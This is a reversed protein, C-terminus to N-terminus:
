RASPAFERAAESLYDHVYASFSRWCEVQYTPADDLRMLVIEAKGLLTRTAMGTPFAAEVLDLPCGSNLVDAARPGSVQIGVNRHGIDVLAHFRGDLAAEVGGAILDADGDPGILLWENPGLRTSSQEATGVRRNIPMDLRFGAATGVSAADDAHLRLSFRAQAALPRITVQAPGPHAAQASPLSLTRRAAHNIELM